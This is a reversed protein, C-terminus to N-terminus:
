KEFERIKDRIQAAKEYEEEQIFKNLLEKLKVKEMSAKQKDCINKPFKGRYEVNGHLRKMLVELREKFAEYCDSCGLRGAKEFEEYSMECKDCVVQKQIPVAYSQTSSKIGLIESLFDEVSFSSSFSLKENSKACQDCLYMEVKQDNIIQTYHVNAIRKQCNQCLM